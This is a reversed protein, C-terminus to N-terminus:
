ILQNIKDKEEKKKVLHVLRTCIGRRHGRLVAVNEAHLPCGLLKGSVCVCPVALLARTAGGGGRGSGDGGGRKKPSRVVTTCWAGAWSMQAGWQSPPHPFEPQNVGKVDYRFGPRCWSFCTRRRSCTRLRSRWWKTRSGVRGGAAGTGELAVDTDGVARCPLTATSSERLTCPAGCSPRCVAQRGLKERQM